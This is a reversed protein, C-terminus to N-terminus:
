FSRHIGRTGIDRVGSALVAKLTTANGLRENSVTIHKTPFSRGRRSGTDTRQDKEVATPLGLEGVVRSALVRTRVVSYRSDISAEEDAVNLITKRVYKEIM